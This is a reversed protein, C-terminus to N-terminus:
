VIEGKRAAYEVLLGAKRLQSIRVAVLEEIVGHISANRKAALVDLAARLDRNGYVTVPIHRKEAREEQPVDQKSILWFDIMTELLENKKMGLRKAEAEFADIAKESIRNSFQHTRGTARLSRGDVKSERRTDLTGYTDDVPPAAIETLIEPATKPLTIM